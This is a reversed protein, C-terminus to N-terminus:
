LEKLTNILIEKSYNDILQKAINRNLAYYKNQRVWCTLIWKEGVKPPKGSHLSEPIVNSEDDVNKWYICQGSKLRISKGIKDFTTEGGSKCQKLCIIFTWFRQGGLVSEVEFENYDSFADLHPMFEQGPSYKILTLLEQNEIPLQSIQSIKQKIDFLINTVDLDSVESVDIYCDDSTRLKSNGIVESPTLKDSFYNIIKESEDKSLFDNELKYEFIM